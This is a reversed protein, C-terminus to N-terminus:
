WDRWDPVYAPDNADGAFGIATEWNRVFGRVPAVHGDVHAANTRRSHRFSTTPSFNQTWFGGQYLLPPDLLACNSLKGGLMIMSDAFAFVRQPMPVNELMQWPRSGISASWGPTCPPALYYGNYGYTSTVAKAFGQPTYTGWPQDPCEYAGGQRLDSCLYPWLFGRTQDVGTLDNTGWWYIPPGGGILATSVYALPMARGRNECAYMQLGRAFQALKVGCVVRRAHSRAASLTPLLLAILLAIIAIVVLVEILTFGNERRRTM